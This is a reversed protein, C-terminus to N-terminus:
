LCFFIWVVGTSIQGPRWCGILGVAGIGVESFFVSPWNRFVGYLFVRMDKRVFLVFAYRRILGRGLNSMEDALGGTEGGRTEVGLIRVEARFHQM